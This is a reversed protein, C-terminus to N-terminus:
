GKIGIMAFSDGKDFVLTSSAGLSKLATIADSSLNKSPDLYTGILVKDGNILDNNIYDIM